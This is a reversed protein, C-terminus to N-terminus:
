KWNEKRLHEFEAIEEDLEEELPNLYPIGMKAYFEILEWKDTGLIKAVEDYSVALELIRPYLLMAGQEFSLGKDEWDLYSAMEKPITVSITVKEM